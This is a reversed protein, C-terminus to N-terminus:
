GKREQPRARGSPRMEGPEAASEGRPQGVAAQTSTLEFLERLQAVVGEIAFEAEVRARGARTVEERLQPSRLLRRIGDALAKPNGAQVLVGCGDGVLEPVGGVDSAVTPVGYALAEILSVPVGEWDSPLAVADVRGAELWELIEANSVYGLFHVTDELGLELARAKANPLLRGSGALWLELREGDRVLSAIAELLTAHRKEPDFRAAFLVVPPDNAPPPGERSPPLEVGMRVVAWRSEEVGPACRRMLDEMAHAIFRVFVASSAKPHLLNRAQIDALHATFSWPVGSLHSAILAVTSPPGAWHAHIHDAKRTRALRALWLAKPFAAVNRMLVDPAPSRFLLAFAGLVAVPSRLLEAGAARAIEGDLLPKHVTMSEADPTTLLGRPRVPVALVNVGQRVLERVEPGFFTDNQGYPFSSTVYLLRPRGL